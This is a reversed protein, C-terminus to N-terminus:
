EQWKLKPLVNPDSTDWVGADWTVSAVAAPIQNMAFPAAYLIETPCQSSSGVWVSNTIQTRNDSLSEGQATGLSAMNECPGWGSSAVYKDITGVFYSNSVTVTSGGNGCGGTLGGVFWGGRIDGEAYSNNVTSFCFRGVLAAVAYPTATGTLTIQAYSEDIDCEWCNGILAGLGMFSTSNVDGYAEITGTASLRQFSSDSATAILGAVYSAKGTAGMKVNFNEVVVNSITSGKVSNFLGINNGCTAATCDFNLNLLKHGDGDFNSNEFYNVMVSAANIGSFDIDKTLVYFAGKGMQGVAEFDAPKSVQYPDVLSGTGPLNYKPNKAPNNSGSEDNSNSTLTVVKPARAGEACNQYIGITILGLIVFIAINRRKNM